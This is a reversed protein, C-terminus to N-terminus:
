GRLLEPNHFINGVLIENEIGYLNYASYLISEIRKGGIFCIPRFSCINSDFEILYQAGTGKDIIDGEYIEKGKIKKGTFQGLTEPRISYAFPCGSSNSIYVGAPVDHVREPLISVNGYHWNGKIDMGRYKIIKM